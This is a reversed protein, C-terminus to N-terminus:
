RAPTVLHLHGRAQSSVVQSPIVETLDLRDTRLAEAREAETVQARRAALLSELGARVENLRRGAEKREEPSLRGLARHARTLASRKGLFETEIRALDDSTPAAAIAREGDQAIGQIELDVNDTVM